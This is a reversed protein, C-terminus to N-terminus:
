SRKKNDNKNIKSWKSDKFTRRLDKMTKESAEKKISSTNKNANSILRMRTRGSTFNFAKPM